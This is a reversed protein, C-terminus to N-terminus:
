PFGRFLKGRAPFLLWFRERSRLETNEEAAQERQVLVLTSAEKSDRVCM